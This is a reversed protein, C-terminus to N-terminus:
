VKLFIKKRFLLWVPIFCIAMFSFSYAFAGWGPNAICSFVHADVWGFGNMRKGGSTFNILGVVGPMLESFMYAAIANSGFVLCPWILGKGLGKKAWGKQEIVWFLLTFAVLSWGAAV